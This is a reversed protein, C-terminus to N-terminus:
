KARKYFPTPVIQAEVPQNRININIPRGPQAIEAPVYCLGINRGLSPAPGGSTVWGVAQGNDMVEYGDRGIGRAKM